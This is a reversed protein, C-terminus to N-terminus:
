KRGLYSILSSIMKSTSEIEFYLNEQVNFLELEESILLVANVESLSARSINLFNMFEKKSRRSKGEAINLSVSVMARKLQQKLNFEESKPYQESLKYVMKLVFISKQWVMLNKFSERSNM